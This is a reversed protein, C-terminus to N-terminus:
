WLDRHCFTCFMRWFCAAPGEQPPRAGFSSAGGRRRELARRIEWAVPRQGDRPQPLEAGRGPARPGVSGKQAHTACQSRRWLTATPAM